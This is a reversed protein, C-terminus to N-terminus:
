IRWKALGSVWKSSRGAAPTYGGGGGGWGWDPWEPYGGPDGDDPPETQPLEPRSRGLNYLPYDYVDGSGFALAGNYPNYKKETMARSYAANRQAEAWAPSGAQVGRSRLYDWYTKMNNPSPSMEFNPNYYGAEGGLMSRKDADSINRPTYDRVNNQQPWERNQLNRPTQPGPLQTPVPRGGMMSWEGGYNQNHTQRMPFVSGTVRPKSKNLVTGTTSRSKPKKKDDDDVLSKLPSSRYQSGDNNWGDFIHAM